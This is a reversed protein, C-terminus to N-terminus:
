AAVADEDDSSAGGIDGSTARVVPSTAKLLVWQGAKKVAHWRCGCYICIYRLVWVGNSLCVGQDPLVTGTCKPCQLPQTRKIIKPM